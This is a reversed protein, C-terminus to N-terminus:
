RGGGAGQKGADGVSVLLRTGRVGLIAGPTAIKMAEPSGKTIDGSQVALTGRKMRALLNGKVNQSDFHYSELSVLSRPGAAFTTGDQFTIGISGDPGTEISDKELVADGVRAPVAEGARLVRATGQASKIRGIPEAAATAVVLTLACTLFPGTTRM